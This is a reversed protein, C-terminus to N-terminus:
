VSIMVPQAEALFVVVVFSETDICTEEQDKLLINEPYSHFDLRDALLSTLRRSGANKGKTIKLFM